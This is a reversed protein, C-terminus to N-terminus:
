GLPRSRPKHDIAANGRIVAERREANGRAIGALALYPLAVAPNARILEARHALYAECAAVYNREAETVAEHAKGVATELTSYKKNV